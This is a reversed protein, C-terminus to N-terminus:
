LLHFSTLYTQPNMTRVDVIILTTKSVSYFYCVETDINAQGDSDESTHYATYSEDYRDNVLKCATAIWPPKWGALKFYKLKHRPHLVISFSHSYTYVNIITLQKGMTICYLELFDTLSYYRNLTRKGLGIVACIAPHLVEKKLTSNTFVENIYDMAPIVMPLSPTGRSFFLM